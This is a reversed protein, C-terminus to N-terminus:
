LIYKNVVCLLRASTGAFACMFMCISYSLYVDYSYLISHYLNVGEGGGRVDFNVTSALLPFSSVQM